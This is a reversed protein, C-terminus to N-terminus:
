PGGPQAGKPRNVAVVKGTNADIRVTAVREYGGSSGRAISLSVAWIPRSNIGQRVLRIQTRNPTFDIQKRATVLAREQTM